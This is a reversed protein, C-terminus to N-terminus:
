ASTDTWAAAWTPAPLQLKDGPQSQTVTQLSASLWAFLDNFALERLMLPPRSSFRALTALDAGKVGIPYVVVRNQQEATVAAAAAQEWGPDNPAGDSILVIWPRYYPLGRDRLEDKRSQLLTLALRMGAGLPTSGSADLTPPTFDKAPSFADGNPSGPVGRGRVDLVRATRGVAVMAIEVRLSALPDSRLEHNLRDVGNNLADIKAGQMSTSADLLLVVPCRPEPNEPSLQVDAMPAKAADFRDWESM